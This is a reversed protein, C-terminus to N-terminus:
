AVSKRDRVLSYALLDKGIPNIGNDDTIYEYTVAAQGPNYCMTIHGFISELLVRLQLTGTTCVFPNVWANGESFGGRLRATPDPGQAFGVWFDGRVYPQLERFDMYKAWPFILTEKIQRMAEHPIEDPGTADYNERDWTANPSHLLGLYHAGSELVDYDAGNTNNMLFANYESDQRPFKAFNLKGTWSFEVYDGLWGNTIAQRVAILNPNVTSTNPCDSVKIELTQDSMGSYTREGLYGQTHNYFKVLVNSRVPPPPPPQPDPTTPGGKCNGLITIGAAAVGGKGILRLLERRSIKKDVGM